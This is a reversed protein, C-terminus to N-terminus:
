QARVDYHLVAATGGALPLLWILDHADIHLPSTWIGIQDEGIDKLCRSLHGLECIQTVDGASSGTKNSNTTVQAAVSPPFLFSSMLVVTCACRFISTIPVM